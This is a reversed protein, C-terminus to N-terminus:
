LRHVRRRVGDDGPHVEQKNGRRLLESERVRRLPRYGHFHLFSARRGAPSARLTIVAGRATDLPSELLLLRREGTQLEPKLWDWETCSSPQVGFRRQARGM